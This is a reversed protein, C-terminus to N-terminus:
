KTKFNLIDEIDHHDRYLIDTAETMSDAFIECKVLSGDTSLYMVNYKYM